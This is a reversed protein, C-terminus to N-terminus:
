GAYIYLKDGPKFAITPADKPQGDFIVIYVMDDSVEGNDTKLRVYHHIESVVILRNGPYLVKDGKRLDGISIEKIKSALSGSGESTKPPDTTKPPKSTIIKTNKENELSPNLEFDLQKELGDPSAVYHSANKKPM